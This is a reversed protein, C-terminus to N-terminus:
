ATLAAAVGDAVAEGTLGFARYLHAPSGTAGVPMTEICHRVLRCHLGHEAIVDAVLTGLGGHRYHAELTVVLPFRAAFAQLDDSPPPNVVSALAVAASVDRERLLAAAELAVHAMPGLAVIGVDAGDLLPEVHGLRFRGELESIPRGERGLRFYVPGDLAHVADLASVAQAPDAPAIVTLAPQVCAVALDELAFHTLGNHGYDFGGGTGVIRVSLGQAVPGNRIFEYPRLLAFTAISYCYPIYGADALGTALGIMNQEAVGVNVFRRPFRDAFTEIVSFGLDGTLLLVRDDEEAIETLRAIFESRM